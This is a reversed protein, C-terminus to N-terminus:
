CRRARWRLWRWREGEREGEGEGEGKEDEGDRWIECVVCGTFASHDLVASSAFSPVDTIGCAEREGDACFLVCSAGM